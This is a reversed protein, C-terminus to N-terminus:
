GGAHVGSATPSANSSTSTGVLPPSVSGPQYTGAPSAAAGPTTSIWPQSDARSRVSGLACTRCAIPYWTSVSSTRPWPAFPGSTSGIDTPSYAASARAPTAQSWARGSTM